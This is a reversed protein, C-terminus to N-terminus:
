FPIDDDFDFGQASAQAPEPTGAQAATGRESNPTKSDLMQMENAIIETSYRDAGTAKDQWKRTVQKGSIYVKSGKQLYQSCIEALRDWAVVNIWNTKEIAQGNADKYDDSCAISFNVVAKGAATSRSEPDRGLRGIFNCQNLDKTM